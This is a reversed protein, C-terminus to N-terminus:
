VGISWFAQSSLPAGSNPLTGPATRCFSFLGHGSWAISLDGKIGRAYFCSAAVSLPKCFSAECRMGKKVHGQQTCSELVKKLFCCHRIQKMLRYLTENSQRLRKRSSNSVDDGSQIRATRWLSTRLLGAAIMTDQKGRSQVLLM